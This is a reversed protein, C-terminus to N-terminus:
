PQIVLVQWPARDPRHNWQTHTHAHMCTHIHMRELLHRDTWDVTLSLFLTRTHTSFLRDTVHGGQTQELMLSLHIMNERLSGVILCYNWWFICLFHRPSFDLTEPFCKGWVAGWNVAGLQPRKLFCDNWSEFRLSICYQLGFTLSLSLTFARLGMTHTRTHINVLISNKYTPSPNHQQLVYHCINAGPNSNHDKVFM